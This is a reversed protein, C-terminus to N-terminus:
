ASGRSTTSRLFSELPGGTVVAIFAWGPLEPYRRVAVVSGGEEITQNGADLNRFSSARVVYIRAVADGRTLVMM